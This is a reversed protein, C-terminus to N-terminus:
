LLKLLLLETLKLITRLELSEVKVFRRLSVRDLPKIGLGLPSVIVVVM